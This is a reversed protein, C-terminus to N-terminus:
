PCGYFEDDVKKSFGTGALGCTPPKNVGFRQIYAPKYTIEGTIIDKEGYKLCLSSQIHGPLSGPYFYFCDKCAPTQINAIHQNHLRHHTTTTHFACQVIRFYEFFRSRLM